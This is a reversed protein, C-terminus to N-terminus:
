VSKSIKFGESKLFAIADKIKTQKREVAAIARVAAERTKGGVKIGTERHYGRYCTTADIFTRQTYGYMCFEASAQGMPLQPKTSKSPPYKANWYEEFTGRKRVTDTTAM